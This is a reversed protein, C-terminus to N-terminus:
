FTVQSTLTRQIIGKLTVEIDVQDPWHPICVGSSCTGLYLNNVEVFNPDTIEVTGAMAHVVTPNEYTILYDLEDFDGVGGGTAQFGVTHNGPNYFFSLNTENDEWTGASFNNNSSVETDALYSRSVGIQPLSIVISLFLLKLLLKKM